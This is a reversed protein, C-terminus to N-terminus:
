SRAFTESVFLTIGEKGLWWNLLMATPNAVPYLVVRYFDIMPALRRTVHMAHRSFYVQPIIERIFTIVFTSFLFAGTGALISESLLTLLVNSAVNAWIITALSLNSDARLALLKAADASGGTEEVELRLRSVSFFALNLGSFIGAQTICLAIGTWTLAYSLPQADVM